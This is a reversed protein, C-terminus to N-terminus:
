NIREVIPHGTWDKGKSPPFPNTRLDTFGGEGDSKGITKGEADAFVEGASSEVVPDATPEVVAAADASTDVPSEDVPEEAVPEPGSADFADKTEAWGFHNKETHPKVGFKTDSIDKANHSAIKEDEPHAYLLSLVEHTDQTGSIQELRSSLVIGPLIGHGALKFFVVDNYSKM